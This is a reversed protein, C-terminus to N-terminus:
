DGRLQPNDFVPSRYRRLAGALADALDRKQDEGLSRGIEVTTRRHRLLLASVRGPREELLLTSWYPDLRIEEGRGRWDTRRITLGGEALTLREMVRGSWRRHLGLLGLVLAAEVGVFGLVPWAGLVAFLTGILGSGILVVAAVLRLGRASLGAPPTTTADFLVPEAQPEPPM